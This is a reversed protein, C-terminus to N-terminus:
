ILLASCGDSSSKEENNGDEKEEDTNDMSMCELDCGKKEICDKTTKYASYGNENRDIYYCCNLVYRSYQNWNGNEFENVDDQAYGHNFCNGIIFMASKCLELIENSKCVEEVPPVTTGCTKELASVCSTETATEYVIGNKEQDACICDIFEAGDEKYRCMGAENECIIYGTEDAMLIQLFYVVSLTLFRLSNNM